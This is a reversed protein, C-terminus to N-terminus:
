CLNVAGNSKYGRFEKCWDIMGRIYDTNASALGGTVVQMNPDANKVGIAAGLKQKNGDYFASLNAAYERGTQYAKRGKWWKDRENDCEVYKVLNLGKRIANAPDGAWRTATNVSLLTSSVYPNNGYRAAFQFGLKAQ